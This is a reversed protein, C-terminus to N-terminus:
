EVLKGGLADAMKPADDGVVSWREGSVIPREGDVGAVYRNQQAATDFVILFTVTEGCMVAHAGAGVMSEPVDTPTACAGGASVYADKLSSTSSYSKASSSCGALALVAVAGVALALTIKM